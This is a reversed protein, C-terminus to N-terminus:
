ILVYIIYEIRLRQMLLAKFFKCLLVLEHSRDRVNTESYLLNPLYICELGQNVKIVYCNMAHSMANVFHFVIALSSEGKENAFDTIM